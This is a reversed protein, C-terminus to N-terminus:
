GTSCMWASLPDSPIVLGEHGVIKRFRWLSVASNSKGKEIQHLIENYTVTKEYGDVNVSTWFKVLEPQKAYDHPHQTIAEVITARFQQGDLQTDM